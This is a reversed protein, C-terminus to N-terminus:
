EEGIYDANEEIEHALIIGIERWDVRECCLNKDDIYIDTIQKRTPTSTDIPLEWEKCLQVAEPVWEDRRGTLLVFEVGGDKSLIDMVEKCYPKIKNFGAEKPDSSQTITGDFDVSVKM